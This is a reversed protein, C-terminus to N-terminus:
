ISQLRIAPRCGSASTSLWFIERFFKPFLGSEDPWFLDPAPHISPRQRLFSVRKSVDFDGAPRLARAVRLNQDQILRAAPLDGALRLARGDLHGIVARGSEAGLDLALFKLEAM